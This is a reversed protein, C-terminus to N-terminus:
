PCVSLTQAAACRGAASVPRELTGSAYDFSAGYSGEDGCSSYPVVVYYSDFAAPSVLEMADAGADDCDIRTYDYVGSRLTAIEGEYIGYNEAGASCGGPSWDFLVSAGSKRLRLPTTAPDIAGPNGGCSLADVQDSIQWGPVGSLQLDEFLGFDGSVPDYYIIHGPLFTPPATADLPALDGPVDLALLWLDGGIRDAGTVNASAPVFGTAVVAVDLEIGVATWGSCGGAGSPEYRVLASPSVLGIGALPTPTDFSVILAGADGGDLYVADIRTGAPVFGSALPVLGGCFFRNFTGASYRVVDRAEAPGGLSGALDSAAGIAFLWHGARDMRHIATVAPDGPVALVSSYPAAAGADHRVIDWPLLFIGDPDAPVDPSLYLTQAATDGAALVLWLLALLIALCRAAIATTPRTIGANPYVPALRTTRTM